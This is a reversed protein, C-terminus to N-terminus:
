ILNSVISRMSHGFWKSGEKKDYDPMIFVLVHYSDTFHPYVKEFSNYTDPFGSFFVLTSVGKELKCGHVQPRLPTLSM